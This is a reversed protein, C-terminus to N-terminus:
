RKTSDSDKGESAPAPRASTAPPAARVAAHEGREGREGHEASSSSAGSPHFQTGAPIVPRYPQGLPFGRMDNYLPSNGPSGPPSNVTRFGSPPTGRAGPPLSPLGQPTFAVARPSNAPPAWRHGGAGVADPVQWGRSNHAFRRNGEWLMRQRWDFGFTLWVGAPYPPGFTVGSGDYYGGGYVIEPNYAPVYIVDAETPLIEILGDEQVVHQQPMDTLTGAALARARLRQISQMVDGPENAFAAGLAQTWQLNQAMWEVVTPYHALGKVSDSWPQHEIEHPDGQAALYSAASVIEDPSTAAPLLIAILPDPYLAIPGLMQDLQAETYLPAPPADPAASSGSDVVVESQARVPMALFVAPLLGVCFCGARSFLRHPMLIPYSQRPFAIATEGIL